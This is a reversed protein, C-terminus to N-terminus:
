KRNFVLLRQTKSQFAQLLPIPTLYSRQATQCQGVTMVYFFGESSVWVSQSGDSFAKDRDIFQHIGTDLRNVVQLDCNRMTVQLGLCYRCGAQEQIRRVEDNFYSTFFSLDIVRKNRDELSLPGSSQAPVGLATDLSRAQSVRARLGAMDLVLGCFALVDAAYLAIHLGVGDPGVPM